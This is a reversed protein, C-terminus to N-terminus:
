LSPVMVFIIFLCPALLITFGLAIMFNAQRVTSVTSKM